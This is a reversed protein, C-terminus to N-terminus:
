HCAKLLEEELYTPTRREIKERPILAAKGAISRTQTAVLIRQSEDQARNPICAGPVSQREKPTPTIQSEKKRKGRFSSPNRYLLAQMGPNVTLRQM